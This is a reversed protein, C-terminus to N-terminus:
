SSAERKVILSTPVILSFQLPSDSWNQVSAFEIPPPKKTKIQLHWTKGNKEWLMKGFTSFVGTFFQLNHAKKKKLLFLKLSINFYNYESIERLFFIKTKRVISHNHIAEATVELMNKEEAYPSLSHSLNFVFAGGSPRPNPTVWQCSKLRKASCAVISLGFSSVNVFEEVIKVSHKKEQFCRNRKVM